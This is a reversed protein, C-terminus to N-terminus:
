INLMKDLKDAKISLAANTNTEAKQVTMQVPEIGSNKHMDKIILGLIYRSASNQIDNNKCHNWEEDSLYVSRTKRSKKSM